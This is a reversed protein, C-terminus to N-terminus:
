AGLGFTILFFDKTRAGIERVDYFGQEEYTHLDSAVGVAQMGLGKANYLSRYLHYSQTVVIINQAKFEHSARYMTDYTSFGKYDCVIDEEPVGQEIAYSKMVDPEDYGPERNGSMLVKQSAGAQYLEIAKDLRDRLIGSPEEEPTVAAGLVVIYDAQTQAAADESIIASQGTVVVVANSGVVVAAALIVVIILFRVIFSFLMKFLKM